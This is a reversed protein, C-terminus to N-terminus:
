PILEEDEFVYDYDCEEGCSEGIIRLSYSAGSTNYWYYYGYQNPGMDYSGIRYDTCAPSHYNEFAIVETASAGPENCTGFITWAKTVDDSGCDGPWEYDQYGGGLRSNGLVDRHWYYNYGDPPPQSEVIDQECSDLSKEVFQSKDVAVHRVVPSRHMTAAEAVQAAALARPVIAAKPALALYIEQTTLGQALLPAILRHKAFASGIERMGIETKGNQEVSYFTVTADFVSISGVETPSSSPGSSPDSGGTSGARSGCGGLSVMAALSAGALAASRTGTTSKM